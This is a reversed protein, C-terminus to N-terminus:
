LTEFGGSFVYDRTKNKDRCQIERCIFMKHFAFGATFYSTEEVNITDGPQIPVVSDSAKFHLFTSYQPSKLM